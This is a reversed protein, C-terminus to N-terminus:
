KENQGALSENQDDGFARRQICAQGPLTRGVDVKLKPSVVCFNGLRENALRTTKSGTLFLEDPKQRGALVLKPCRQVGSSSRRRRERQGDRADVRHWDRMRFALWKVSVCAICRSRGLRLPMMTEM